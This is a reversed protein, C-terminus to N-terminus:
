DNNKKNKEIELMILHMKYFKKYKKKIISLQKVAEEIEQKTMMLSM